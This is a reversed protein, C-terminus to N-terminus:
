WSMTTFSDHSGRSEDTTSFHCAELLKSDAQISTSLKFLSDSLYKQFEAFRVDLKHVM